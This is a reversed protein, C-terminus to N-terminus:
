AQEKTAEPGGAPWYATTEVLVKVARGRERLLQGVTGLNARLQEDTFAFGGDDTDMVECPVGHTVLLKEILRALTTKGSAPGGTLRVRLVDSDM